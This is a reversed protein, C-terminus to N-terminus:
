HFYLQIYEPSSTIQYKVNKTKLYTSHNPTNILQKQTTNIKINFFQREGCAGNDNSCDLFGLLLFVLRKGWPKTFSCISPQTTKEKETENSLIEGPRRYMNSSFLFKCKAKKIHLHCCLSSKSLLECADTSFLQYKMFWHIIHFGELLLNHTLTFHLGKM